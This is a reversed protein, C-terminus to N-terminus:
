QVLLLGLLKIKTSFVLAGVFEVKLGYDQYFRSAKSAQFGENFYQGGAYGVWDVVGVRVVDGDAVAPKPDKQNGTLEGLETNNLAWKIGFFAAAVIALVILLRSFFTLKVRRAM